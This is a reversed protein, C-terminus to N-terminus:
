GRFHRVIRGVEILDPVIFEPKAALLEKKSNWSCKGSIVINHVGVKKALKIDAARDGVYFCEEPKIKNMKLYKKIFETKDDFNDACYVERFLHRMKLHRLVPIVLDSLSNSVVIRKAHIDHIHGADHCKKVLNAEHLVDKMIARRIWWRYLHSPIFHKLTEGLSLGIDITELIRKKSFGMPNLHKMISDYYARRSDVVTGDFDFIVLKIM